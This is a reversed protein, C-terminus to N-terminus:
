RYVSSGRRWFAFPIELSVGIPFMSCVRMQFDKDNDIAVRKSVDPYYGGVEKWACKFFTCSSHTMSIDHFHKFKLADQPGWKKIEIERSGAIDRIHTPWHSLDRDERFWFSTAGIMFIDEHVRLIRLAVELADHMLYDDADLGMIVEAETSKIAFNIAQNQGVKRPLRLIECSVGQPSNQAFRELITQTNDPSCDNVFIVQFPRWTQGVISKFTTKLYKAHKYCPVVICVRKEFNHPRKPINADNRSELFRKINESITPEKKLFYQRELSSIDHFRGRM